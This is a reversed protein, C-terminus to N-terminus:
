YGIIERVKTSLKRGRLEMNANIMDEVQWTIRPYNNIVTILEATFKTTLGLTCASEPTLEFHTNM